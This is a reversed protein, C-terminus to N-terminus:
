LLRLADPLDGDDHLVLHIPEEPDLLWGAWVSLEPRAGINLSGPVHGAGFDMMDRVDLLQAVFFWPTAAFAHEIRMGGM